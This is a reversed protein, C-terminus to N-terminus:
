TEGSSITSSWSLIDFVKWQIYIALIFWQEVDVILSNGLVAVGNGVESASKEVGPM